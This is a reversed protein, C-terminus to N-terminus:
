SSPNTAKSGGWGQACKSQEAHKDWCLFARDGEAATYMWWELDVGLRDCWFEWSEKVSGIGRCINKSGQVSVMVSSPVLSLSEGHAGYKWIGPEDWGPLNSTEEACKRWGTRLQGTFGSTHLGRGCELAYEQRFQLWLINLGGMGPM